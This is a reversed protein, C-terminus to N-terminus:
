IFFGNDATGESESRANRVQYVLYGRHTKNSPCLGFRALLTYIRNVKAQYEEATSCNLM